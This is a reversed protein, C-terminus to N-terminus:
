INQQCKQLWIQKTALRQPCLNCIQAITSFFYRAMPYKKKNNLFPWFM